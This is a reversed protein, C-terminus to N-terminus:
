SPFAAIDVMAAEDDRVIASVLVRPLGGGPNLVVDILGRMDTRAIVWEAGRLMEDLRKYDPEISKANGEFEKSYVVKCPVGAPRPM